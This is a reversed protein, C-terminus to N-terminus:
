RSLVEQFGNLTEFMTIPQVLFIDIRCNSCTPFGYPILESWRLDERRSSHSGRSAHCVKPYTQWVSM